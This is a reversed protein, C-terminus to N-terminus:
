NVRRAGHPADLSFAPITIEFEEGDESIMEYTGMMVGSDTALPAGSTYGFSDGPALVPQKGVVGAGHVEQTRGLADAIRWNRNRLRVTRPGRNVIRVEYGFMFRGEAPSSDRPLYFPRVTVEIERTVASYSGTETMAAGAM